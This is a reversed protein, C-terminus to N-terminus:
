HVYLRSIHLTQEGPEVQVHDSRFYLWIGAKKPARRYRPWPTADWFAAVVEGGRAGDERRRHKAKGKCCFPGSPTMGICSISRCAFLWITLYHELIYTHYTFCARKCQLSGNATCPINLSGGILQPLRGPLTEINLRSRSMRSCHPLDYVVPRKWSSLQSNYSRRSQTSQYLRLTLFMFESVWGRFGTAIMKGPVM